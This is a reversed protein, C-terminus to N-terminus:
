IRINQSGNSTSVTNRKTELEMAILDCNVTSFSSVTSFAQAFDHLTYNATWQNVPMIEM